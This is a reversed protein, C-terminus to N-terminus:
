TVGLAELAEEITEFWTQAMTEYGIDNPHVGDSGQGRFDGTSAKEHDAIRVNKGNAEQRIVDNLRAINEIAFVRFGGPNVRPYTGIIPFKGRLQVIRMMEALNSRVVPFRAIENNVDVIGTLILVVDPNHRRIMEDIRDLSERTNEGGVGETVLDFGTGYREELRRWLKPVYGEVTALEARLGGDAGSQQTVGITLSDGFCLIKKFPFNEPIETRRQSGALATSGSRDLNGTEPAVPSRDGGCGVGFLIGLLLGTTITKM